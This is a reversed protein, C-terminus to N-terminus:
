GAAVGGALFIAVDVLERMHFPKAIFPYPLEVEAADPFGSMLLVRAGLKTADQALGLGSEGALVIDIVALDIEEAAMIDRAGAATVACSVRMGADGLAAEVLACVGSADDVVLVHPHHPSLPM